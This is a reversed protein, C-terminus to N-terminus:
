TQNRTTNKRLKLTRIKAFQYPTIFFYTNLHHPHPLTPSLIPPYLLPLRFCFPHTKLERPQNAIPPLLNREKEIQQNLLNNPPLQTKKPYPSSLLSLSSFFLFSLFSFFLSFLFSLFDFMPHRWFFVLPLRINSKTTNTSPTPFASESFDPLSILLSVLQPNNNSKKSRSLYLSPLSLSIHPPQSYQPM